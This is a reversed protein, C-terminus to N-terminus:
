PLAGSTPAASAPAAAIFNPTAAEAPEITEPLVVLVVPPVPPVPVPVPVPVPPVPVVPPPLVAVLPGTESLALATTKPGVDSVCVTVSVFVVLLLTVNMWAEIDLARYM